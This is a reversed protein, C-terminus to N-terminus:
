RIETEADAVKAIKAQRDREYNTHIHEIDGRPPCFIEVGNFEFVVWLNLFNAFNLATQICTRVNEGCDSELRLRM